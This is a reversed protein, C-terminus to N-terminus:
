HTMDDRISEADETRKRKLKINRWQEMIYEVAEKMSAKRNEKRNWLELVPVRGSPNYENLERLAKTVLDYVEGGHKQKLARLKEDGENLIEMENGDVLIVKFPHWLPNSIDDQLRACLLAAHNRLNDHKSLQYKCANEVSKLDIEGMRKIGLNARPTTLDQMGHILAKRALQLEDNADPEKIMLTHFIPKIDQHDEREQEVVKKKSKSDESGKHKMAELKSHLQKIELELKQKANAQDVLDFLLDLQKEKQGKEQEYNRRHPSSKSDAEDLHKSMSDFAHMEPELESSRHALEHMKGCEEKNSMILKQSQEM